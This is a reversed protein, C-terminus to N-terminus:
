QISEIEIWSDFQHLMYCTPIINAPNDCQKLETFNVSVNVGNQFSSVKDFNCVKYDKGNLRLYTGTCDKIVTANKAVEKKCSCFTLILLLTILYLTPKM